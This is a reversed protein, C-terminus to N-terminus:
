FPISDDMDEAPAKYKSGPNPTSVSRGDKVFPGTFSLSLYKTGKEREKFWAAIMMKKGGVMCNGSYDPRLPNDGKDHVFLAGSNDKQEFAM